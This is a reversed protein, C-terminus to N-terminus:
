KTPAGKVLLDACGSYVSIPPPTMPEDTLANMDQGITKGVRSLTQEVRSMM